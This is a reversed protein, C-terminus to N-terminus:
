AKWLDWLIFKILYTHFHLFLPFCALCFLLLKVMLCLWSAKTGERSSYVCLIRLWVRSINQLYQIRWWISSTLQKSGVLMYIEWVLQFWFTSSTSEQNGWWWGILLIDVLQACAGCSGERVRDKIVKELFGKPCEPRKLVLQEPCRAQHRCYVSSEKVM